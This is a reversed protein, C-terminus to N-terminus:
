GGVGRVRVNRFGMKWVLGLEEKGLREVRGLLVCKRIHVFEDVEEAMGKSLIGKM